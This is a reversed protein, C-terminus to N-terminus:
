RKRNRPIKNDVIGRETFRFGGGLILLQKGDHSAALLPRSSKGFRHVYIAPEGDRSSEYGVMVLRGVALAARPISPISIKEISKVSGSFRKQLNVASRVSQLAAPNDRIEMPAFQSRRMERADLSSGDPAYDTANGNGKPYQLRRPLYGQPFRRFYSHRAHNLATALARRRMLGRKELAITNDRITNISYGLKLM